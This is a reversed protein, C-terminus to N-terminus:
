SLKPGSAANKTTTAGIGQGPTKPCKPVPNLGQPAQQQGIPTHHTPTAIPTPQRFGPPQKIEWVKCVSYASTLFGGKRCQWTDTQLKAVHQCIGCRKRQAASVFGQMGKAANIPSTSM